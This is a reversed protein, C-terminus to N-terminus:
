GDKISRELPSVAFAVMLVVMLRGEVSLVNSISLSRIQRLVNEFSSTTLSRRFLPRSFVPFRSCFGTFIERRPVSCVKCKSSIFFQRHQARTRQYFTTEQRRDSAFCGFSRVRGFLPICSVLNTIRSPKSCM